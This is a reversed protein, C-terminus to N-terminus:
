GARMSADREYPCSVDHGDQLHAQRLAPPGDKRTQNVCPHTKEESKWSSRAPYLLRSAWARSTGGTGDARACRLMARTPARYMTGTKCPPHGMRASKALTPIKDPLTGLNATQVWTKRKGMEARSIRRM